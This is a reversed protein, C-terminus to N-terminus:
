QQKFLGLINMKALKDKARQSMEGKHPIEGVIFFFDIALSVLDSISEQLQYSSYDIIDRRWKPLRVSIKQTKSSDFYLNPNNHITTSM